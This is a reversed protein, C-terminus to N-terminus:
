AWKVWYIARKFGIAQNNAYHITKSNAIGLKGAVRIDCQLRTAANGDLLAPATKRPSPVTQCAMDSPGYRGSAAAIVNVGQTM